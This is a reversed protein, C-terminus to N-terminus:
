DGIDDLHADPALEPVDPIPQLPTGVRRSLETSHEPPTGMAIRVGVEVSAETRSRAEVVYDDRVTRTVPVIFKM